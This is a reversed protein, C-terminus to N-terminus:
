SSILFGLFALLGGTGTEAWVLLFKNHVTYLWQGRLELTIYDSMILSFNNAGVGFIPHAAIVRFALKMLPIRAFAAGDDDGFLRELLVGHFVLAMSMGLFILLLPIKAPLWGKSWSLYIFISSSVVFAIWAGRSMTLLIAVTGMVFAIAGLRKYYWNVLAIFMSLSPILLLSFYAGATNPGGVTGGIRMGKDVRATLGAIKITQGIGRLMMVITSELILGLFLMLLIFKIDERSKVTGALYIFLLFQQFLMFNEFAALQADKASFISLLSFFIFIALPIIGKLANSEHSRKPEKYKELFWLIYLVVLAISTISINWGAIAGFSPIDERFGLHIDLQFPIDILILALLLKRINGVVAIIFLFLCAAIVLILWKPPLITMKLVGFGISMGAIVVFVWWLFNKPIRIRSEPPTM